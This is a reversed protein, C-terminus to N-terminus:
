AEVEETVVASVLNVILNRQSVLTVVDPVGSELDIQTNRESQLEVTDSIGSTLEIVEPM